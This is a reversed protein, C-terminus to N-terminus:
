WIFNQSSFLIEICFYRRYQQQLQRRESEAVRLQEKLVQIEEDKDHQSQLECHM